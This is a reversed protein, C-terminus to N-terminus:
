SLGHHQCVPCALPQYRNNIGYHSIASRDEAKERVALHEDRETETERERERVWLYLYQCRDTGRYLLALYITNINSAQKHKLILRTKTKNESHKTVKRIYPSPSQSAECARTLERQSEGEFVCACVCREVCLSNIHIILARFGKQILVAHAACLVCM